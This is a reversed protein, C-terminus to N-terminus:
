EEENEDKVEYDADLIPADGAGLASSRPRELTPSSKAGTPFVLARLVLVGLGAAALGLALMLAFPLLALVAAALLFGAWRPIGFTRIQYKMM